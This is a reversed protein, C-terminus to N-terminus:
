TGIYCPSLFSRPCHEARCPFPFACCTCDSVQFQFIRRDASEISSDDSSCDGDDDQRANAAAANNLHIANPDHERHHHGENSTAMASASSAMNLSNDATDGVGAVSASTTGNSKQLSSRWRYKIPRDAGGKNHFGRCSLCRRACYTAKALLSRNDESASSTTQKSKVNDWIVFCIRSYCFLLVVLPIFFNSISFWTVYTPMGWGPAFHARCSAGQFIFAQPVCLLISVVWAVGIM